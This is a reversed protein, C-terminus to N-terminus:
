EHAQAKDCIDLIAFAIRRKERRLNEPDETDRIQITAVEELQQIKLLVEKEYAEPVIGQLEKLAARLRNQEVLRRVRAYPDISSSASAEGFFDIDLDELDELAWWKKRKKGEYWAMPKMGLEHILKTNKLDQNLGELMEGIHEYLDKVSAGYLNVYIAKEEWSEEVHAFAQQAPNHLVVNNKWMLNNYVCIHQKLPSERGKSRYTDMYLERDASSVEKPLGEKQQLSVILKNVTGAPIFPYFIFKIQYTPERFLHDLNPQYAPLLAPVVYSLRDFPDKQEYGLKYALMMALFAQHEKKTHDPWVETLHLPKLLGEEQVWKSDLVRYMADKVWVPNLIVWSKLQPHDGFYILMGIRDLIHIWSKAEEKSMQHRLCISEYEQYSIYPETRTELEDKVDMWLISYENTFIDASVKPLVQRITQELKDLNEKTKCSIEIFTSHINPFIRQRDKQNIPMPQEDIKNIVHIVPSFGQDIPDYGYATVMSLWYEFGVYEEEKQPTDDYSTVFIYLSKRGCFLQQVERYKGQGGFDWMSMRFDIEDKLQTLSGPLKHIEYTNVELGQTREEKTPLVAEKDTLRLCISTKGVEGNGVLIMKAQHLARTGDDRKSKLYNWVLDRSNEREGSAIVEPPIDLSPNAHLYLTQLQELSLFNAPLRKLQNNRLHLTQLTPLRPDLKLQELQNDPLYLYKLKGFGSPLHLHRLQNNGLNIEILSPCGEEFHMRQLANNRLDLIRLKQCGGPLDCETLACQSANLTELLPYEGALELQKLSPNKSVNLHRLSMASAPIRLSRLKNQSLNLAELASLDEELWSRLQDDTLDQGCLNLGTLLGQENRSHTNQFRYWILEAPDAENVIKM